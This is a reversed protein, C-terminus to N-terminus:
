RRWPTLARVADVGDRRVHVLIPSRSDTLGRAAAIFEPWTGAMDFRDILRGDMRYVSVTATAGGLPTVAARPATATGEPLLEIDGFDIDTASSAATKTQEAGAYGEARIAITATMDGEAYPLEVSIRFGGRRFGGSTRVTDIALIDDGRELTVIVQAGSLGEATEDLVRGSVAYTLQEDIEYPTLGIEGLDLTDPVDGWEVDTRSQYGDAEVEWMLGNAALPIAVSLAAAGDADAYATDIRIADGGGFGEMASVILAAGELASEADDDLIAAIVVVTDYRVMRMTVTAELTDNVGDDPEDIRVTQDESVYGQAMVGILARRAGSENVLTLEFGGDGDSEGEASNGLNGLIVTVLAGEIPEENEDVVRGQVLVTDAGEVPPEDVSALTFDHAITDPTGDNADDVTVYEQVPQYGNATVSFFAGNFMTATALEYEGQADTTDADAGGGFGGSRVVAGAVPEGQTDTVTGSVLLDDAWVGSTAWAAVIFAGCVVRMIRKM